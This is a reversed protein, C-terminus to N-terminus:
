QTLAPVYSLNGLFRGIHNGHSTGLRYLDGLIFPVVLYDIQKEQGKACSLVLADLAKLRRTLDPSGESFVM